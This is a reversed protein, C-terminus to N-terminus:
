RKLIAEVEKQARHMAEGAEIAGANAQSLYVGFVNEIENWLPTRPRPRASELSKLQAPFGRYKRRLEEDLFVSRRTPPNGRFAAQKMREASTVWQMFEFARDANRSATPVALLWAGLEARGPKVASPVQGFEIKDAVKSKSPDDMASIWSPWNISMVATAQLLHASVEDANFAAYGPPSLKGLELMFKLAAISEPSDLRPEGGEGFMEAGFAWYLSMYDAVVGNGASARLVYGYMREAEGIKKGATLVDQWTAPEGLGHKAFLDKRYFFLHSNGVFPLAYFRGTKYPNRSVDLCSALFDPDPTWPLPRLNDDASIRPFWPDDIMILDFAGTRSTLDILEKEFLNAYPLEVVEVPLGRLKGWELAGQKLADGEGGANIAVTLAAPKGCGALLVAALLAARSM